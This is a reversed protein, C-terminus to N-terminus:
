MGGGKLPVDHIGSWKMVWESFLSNAWGFWNRTSRGGNVHISEHLGTKTSSTNLIMELIRSNSSPDTIAEMVLALHWVANTGLGATQEADM